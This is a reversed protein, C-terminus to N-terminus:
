PSGVSESHLGVFVVCHDSRMKLHMILNLMHSGLKLGVLSKESCKFYLRLRGELAKLGGSSRGWGRQFRGEM